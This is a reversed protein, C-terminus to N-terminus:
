GRRFTEQALLYAIAAAAGGHEPCIERKISHKVIKGILVSCLRAEMLCGCTGVVVVDPLKFCGAHIPGVRRDEGARYMTTYKRAGFTNRPDKAGCWICRPASAEDM